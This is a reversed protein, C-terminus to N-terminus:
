AGAAKHQEILIPIATNVHINYFRSRALVLVAMVHNLSMLLSVAHIRVTGGAAHHSDGSSTVGTM